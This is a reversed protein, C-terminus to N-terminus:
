LKNDNMFDINVVSGATTKNTITTMTAYYYYYYYYCCCCYCYYYEKKDCIFDFKKVKALYSIKLNYIINPM